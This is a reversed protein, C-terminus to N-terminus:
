VCVPPFLPAIVVWERQAIERLRERNRRGRKEEIGEREREEEESEREAQREKQEQQVDPQIYIAHSLQLHHFCSTPGLLGKKRKIVPQSESPTFVNTSLSLSLCRSPSANPLCLCLSLTRLLRFQYLIESPCMCFMSMFRSFCCWWTITLVLVRIQCDFKCLIVNSSLHLTATVAEGQITCLIIISSGPILCM